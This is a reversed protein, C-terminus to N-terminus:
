SSIERPLSSHVSASKAEVRCLEQDHFIGLSSKTGFKYKERSKTIKCALKLRNSGKNRRQNFFSSFVETTSRCMGLQNVLDSEPDSTVSRYSIVIVVNM